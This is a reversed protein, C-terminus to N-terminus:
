PTCRWISAKGTIARWCASACPPPARSSSATHAFVGTGGLTALPGALTDGETKVTVLEFEVGTTGEHAHSAATVHEAALTSQTLALASGRTGLLYTESM